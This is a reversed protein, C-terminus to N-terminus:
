YRSMAFRKSTWAIALVTTSLLWNPTILVGKKTRLVSISFRLELRGHRRSLLIQEDNRQMYLHSAKYNTWRSESGIRSLIGVNGVLYNSINSRTAKITYYKHGHSDIQSGNHVMIYWQSDKNIVKM